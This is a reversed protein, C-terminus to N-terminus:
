RAVAERVGGFCCCREGETVAFWLCEVEVKIVAADVDAVQGLGGLIGEGSPKRVSSGSQVGDHDHEGGGAVQDGFEVATGARM